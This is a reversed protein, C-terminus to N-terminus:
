GLKLGVPDSGMIDWGEYRITHVLNRVEGEHEADGWLVLALGEDNVLESVTVGGPLKMEILQTM